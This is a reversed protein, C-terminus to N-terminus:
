RYIRIMKEIKSKLDEEYVFNFRFPTVDQLREIGSRLEETVVNEDWIGELLLNAVIPGSEKMTVWVVHDFEGFSTGRLSSAGGTTALVYYKGNNRDYKTYRHYHGTFVNHPRGKLLEEVDNWRKTDEMTWLPQHMFALTYKVDKNEELTKKIWEFQEDSITGRGAGRKQDESNLCLFLVEKYTFAYYTNGLRSKWVDEMVQITIYLNGPVLFFSM